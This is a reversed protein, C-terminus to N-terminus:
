SQFARWKARDPELLTLAQEYKAQPATADLGNVSNVLHGAEVKKNTYNL